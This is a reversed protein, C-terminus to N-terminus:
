VCGIRAIGSLRVPVYLRKVDQKPSGCVRDTISVHYICFFKSSGTGEVSLRYNYMRLLSILDFYLLLTAKVIGAPLRKPAVHV